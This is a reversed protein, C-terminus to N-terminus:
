GVASRAIEARRKVDEAARGTRAEYTANDSPGECVVIAVVSDRDLGLAQRLGKRAGAALLVAVAAVASEGAAVPGHEANLKHDGLLRMSPAVCEDGVAAVLDVCRSNVRWALPSVARCDLGVQVTTEDTECKGLGRAARSLSDAALPEVAVM